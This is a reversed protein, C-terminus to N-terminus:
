QQATMCTVYYALLTKSEASQREATKFGKQLSM